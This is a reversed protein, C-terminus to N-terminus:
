TVLRWPMNNVHSNVFLLDDITWYWLHKFRWFNFIQTNIMSPLKGGHDKPQYSITVNQCWFVKVNWLLTFNNTHLSLLFTTAIFSCSVKWTEYCFIKFNNWMNYCCFVKEFLLTDVVRMQRNINSHLSILKNIM